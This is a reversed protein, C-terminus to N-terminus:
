REEFGSEILEAAKELMAAEDRGSCIVTVSDGCKICATMISLISKGNVTKDGCKVIVDSEYRAMAKVWIQAPRMHLGSPNKM